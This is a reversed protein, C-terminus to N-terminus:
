GITIETRKLKAVDAYALGTFCSFLFIDRVLTIRESAFSKAAAVQLEHETLVERNVERRALKYGFFPDKQLWGNKLCQLIIKRFDSPYKMATNHACIGKKLHFEFDAIFGRTLKHSRYTM